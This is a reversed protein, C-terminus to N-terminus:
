RAVCPSGNHRLEDALNVVASQLIAFCTRFYIESLTHPDHIHIRHPRAWHGLLAIAKSPVGRKALEHAHRVEMALLLDGPTYVYDQYDTARHAALNLGYRQAAEVAMHYAPAGTTTSLGISVSELGLPLAVAQAFASRNINGLCVFVLRQTARFDPQLFPTLRGTLFEAEGLLWRVAGRFTGFNVDILWSLANRPSHKGTPSRWAHQEPPLRQTGDPPPGANM